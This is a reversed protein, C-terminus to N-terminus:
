DDDADNPPQEEDTGTPEPENTPPEAGPESPTVNVPRLLVDGGPLPPMDLFARGENQTYLGSEIASRATRVRTETDARLLADINFKVAVTDQERELLLKREVEQEWRVAWPMLTDQVFSIQQSEINSWTARGLEMVKHPPVRFVRCIEIVQERRVDTLQTKDPDVGTEEYKMGGPLVALRFANDTGTYKAKWSALFSRVADPKMAGTNVIGGLQGGNSFFKSAYKTAALGLGVTHRAYHLPGLPTVGDLTMWVVDLVEDPRLVIWGSGSRVQYRVMGGVRDVRVDRSPVPYLGIPRGLEDKEIVAIARGYLLANFMVATRYTAPTMYENPWRSLVRHVPHSKDKEGDRRVHVPLTAFAEAIASVCAMVASHTLAIDATITQGSDSSASMFIPSSTAIAPEFARTDDSDILASTAARIRSLLPM